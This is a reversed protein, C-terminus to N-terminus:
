LSYGSYVDSHAALFGGVLVDWAISRMVRLCYLM